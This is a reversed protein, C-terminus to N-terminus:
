VKEVDVGFNPDVWRDRENADDFREDEDKKGLVAPEAGPTGAASVVGTRGDADITPDSSKSRTGFLSSSSSSSPTMVGAEDTKEDNM